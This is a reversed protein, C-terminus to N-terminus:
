KTVRDIVKQLKEKTGKPDKRSDIAVKILGNPFDYEKPINFGTRKLVKAEQEVYANLLITSIASPIGFEAEITKAALPVVAKQIKLRLDVLQPPFFILSHGGKEQPLEFGLLAAAAEDVYGNDFHQYGASLFQAAVLAANGLKWKLFEYVAEQAREKDADTVVNELDYRVVAYLVAHGAASRAMRADGRKALSEARHQRGPHDQPCKRPEDPGARGTAAIFIVAGGVISLTEKCSM